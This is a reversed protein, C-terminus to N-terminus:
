DGKVLKVGPLNGKKSSWARSLGKGRGLFTRGWIDAFSIGLKKLDKRL